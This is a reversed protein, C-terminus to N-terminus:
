RKPSWSSGFKHRTPLRTIKPSFRTTKRGSTQINASFGRLQRLVECYFKGNLKVLPYFHRISLAMFSPAEVHAQCQQSGSVREAAMTFKSVAVAVFVKDQPWLWLGM